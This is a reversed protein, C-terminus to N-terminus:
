LVAGKLVSSSALLLVYPELWADVAAIMRRVMDVFVFKREIEM